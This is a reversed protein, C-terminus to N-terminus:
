QHEKRAAEIDAPTPPAAFFLKKASWVDAFVDRLEQQLWAASKIGIHSTNVIWVADLGSMGEVQAKTLPLNSPRQTAARYADMEVSCEWTDIQPSNAGCQECAHTGLCRRGLDEDEDQGHYNVRFVMEEGCWPCIVPNREESM